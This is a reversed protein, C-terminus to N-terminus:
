EFDPPDEKRSGIEELADAPSLIRIGQWQGLELLHTDGSIIVDAGPRLGASFSRGSRVPEVM